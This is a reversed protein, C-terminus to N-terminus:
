WVEFLYEGGVKKRRATRNDMVGEPTSLVGIGYGEKVPKLEQYGRYIRRGPTSVFRTHSFAPKGNEYKIRVELVPKKGIIRKEASILYGREALVKAVALDFKSFPLHLHEKKAQIGNKIRVLLDTYM